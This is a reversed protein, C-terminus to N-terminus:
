VNKVELMEKGLYHLFIYFPEDFSVYHFLGLARGYMPMALLFPAHGVGQEWGGAM